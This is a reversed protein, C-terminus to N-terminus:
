AAKPQSGNESACEAELVELARCVRHAEGTKGILKGDFVAAVVNADLGNARSWAALSCGEATILDRLRRRRVLEDTTVRVKNNTSKEPPQPKAPAFEAPGTAEASQSTLAAKVAPLNTSRVGTVLYQVDLGVAAAAALVSSGIERGGSAFDLLLAKSIGLREAQEAPKVGLRSSEIVFRAAILLRVPMEVVVHQVQHPGRSSTALLQVAAAVTSSM